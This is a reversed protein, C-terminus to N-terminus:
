MQTEAGAVMASMKDKVVWCEVPVFNPRSPLFMNMRRNGFEILTSNELFFFEGTNKVHPFSHLPFDFRNMAFYEAMLVARYHTDILWWLKYFQELVDEDKTLIVTPRGTRLAHEFAFYVLSEDTARKDVPVHKGDKHALVLGREGFKRQVATMLENSSPTRGERRQFEVDIIQFIRRRIQLLYVYYLYANAESTGQAPLSTVQLNLHKEIVARSGIYAPNRMVWDNVELRVNPIVYISDPRALLARWLSDEIKIDWMNSDLFFSVEPSVNNEINRVLNARLGTDNERIKMSLRSVFSPDEKATPPIFAKGDYGRKPSRGGLHRSVRNGSV